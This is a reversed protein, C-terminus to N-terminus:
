IIAVPRIQITRNNFDVGGQNTHSARRQAFKVKALSLSNAQTIRITKTLSGAPSRSKGTDSSISAYSFLDDLIAANTDDASILVSGASNELQYSILAGSESQGLNTLVDSVTTPAWGNTNYLRIDSTFTIDFIGGTLAKPLAVFALSSIKWTTGTGTDETSDSSVSSLNSGGIFQWKYITASANYRLHWIVDDGAKYYIEDGTVPSTLGAANLASTLTTNSSNTGDIFFPRTTGTVNQDTVLKSKTIAGNAIKNTTVGTTTESGTTIDALDTTQVAGAAITGTTVSNAALKANTISADKISSGDIQAGKGPSHDHQDLKIFNNALQDSNYPDTLNNWVTLQLNPTTQAM